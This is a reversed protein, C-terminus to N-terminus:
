SILSKGRPKLIRQVDSLNKVSINRKQLNLQIHINIETLNIFVIPSLLLIQYMNEIYKIKKRLLKLLDVTFWPKNFDQSYKKTSSGVPFCENFSFSLVKM